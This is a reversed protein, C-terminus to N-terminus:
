LISKCGLEGERRLVGSQTLFHEKGKHRGKFTHMDFVLGGMKALPQGPDFLRLLRVVTQAVFADTTDTRALSAPLHESVHKSWVQVPHVVKNPFARRPQPPMGSIGIQVAMSLYINRENSEPNRRYQRWFWQRLLRIAWVADSAFREMDWGTLFDRPTDDRDKASLADFIRNISTTYKPPNGLYPCIAGFARQYLVRRVKPTAHAAQKRWNVLQGAFRGGRDNCWLKFEWDTKRDLLSDPELKFADTVMSDYDDRADQAQEELVARSKAQRPTVAAPADPVADFYRHLLLDFKASTFRHEAVESPHTLVLTRIWPWGQEVLQWVTGMSQYGSGTGDLVGGISALWELVKLTAWPDSYGVEEVAVVALTRLESFFYRSNLTMLCMALAMSEQESCRVAKHLLSKVTQLPIQTAASTGDVGFDGAKQRKIKHGMWSLAPTAFSHAGKGAVAERSAVVQVWRAEVADLLQDTSYARVSVGLVHRVHAAFRQCLAVYEHLPMPDHGRLLDDVFQFFDKTPSVTGTVRPIAHFRVFLDAKLDPQPARRKM